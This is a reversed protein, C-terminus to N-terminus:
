EITTTTFAHVHVHACFQKVIICDICDIQCLVALLMNQKLHKFTAGGDPPHAAGNARVESINKSSKLTSSFNSGTLLVIVRQRVRPESSIGRHKAVECIPAM